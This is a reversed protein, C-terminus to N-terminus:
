HGIFLRIDEEDHGVVMRSVGHAAVPAPNVSRRIQVADGLATDPKVIAKACVRDTGGAAGGDESSGIVVYVPYGGKCGGHVVAQRGKWFEELRISVLGGYEPLPVESQARTM